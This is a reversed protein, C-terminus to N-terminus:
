SLDKGHLADKDRLTGCRAQPAAVVRELLLEGYAAPDADSLWFSRWIANEEELVKLRKAGSFPGELKYL